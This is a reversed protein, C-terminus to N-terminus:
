KGSAKKAPSSPTAPAATTQAQALAAGSMLAAVIMRKM